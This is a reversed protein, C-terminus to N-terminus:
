GHSRLRKWLLVGVLIAGGILLPGGLGSAAGAVIGAPSASLPPPATRDGSRADGAYSVVQDGQYWPSAMTGGMAASSSTSSLSLPPMGAM